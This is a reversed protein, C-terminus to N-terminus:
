WGFLLDVCPFREVAERRNVPRRCGAYLLTSWSLVVGHKRLTGRLRSLNWWCISRSQRWNNPQELGKIFAHKTGLAQGGCCHCADCCTETSSASVSPLDLIPCPLVRILPVRWRPQKQAYLWACVECDTQKGRRGYPAVWHPAPFGVQFINCRNWRYEIHFKLYIRWGSFEQLFHRSICLWGYSLCYTTLTSYFHLTNLTSFLSAFMELGGEHGCYIVTENDSGSSSTCDIDTM